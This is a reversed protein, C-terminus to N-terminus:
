KQIFKIIMFILKLDVYKNRLSNLKNEVGNEIDLNDKCHCNLRRHGICDEHQLLIDCRGSQYFRDQHCMGVQFCCCVIIDIKHDM